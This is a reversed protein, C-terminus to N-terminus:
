KSPRPQEHQTGLASQFYPHEKWPDNKDWKKSIDLIKLRNSEPLVCASADFRQHPSFWGKSLDNPAYRRLAYKEILHSRSLGPYHRLIFPTPCIRQGEFRVQHGGSSVLDVERIKKWANVRRLGAPEFFYYRRMTQAYDGGKHNEGELPLFVFEDFNVSNYGEKDVQEIAERLTGRDLPAERIEDADHHLFWDSRIESALREENRLIATLDFYGPYSLREFRSVGRGIRDQAIGDTGDTSGNDIVCVEIGQQCLHDLCRELYLAENCVTLLATVKM